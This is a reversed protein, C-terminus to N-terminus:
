AAAARVDVRSPHRDQPEVWPQGLARFFDAEEPCPVLQGARYVNTGSVRRLYRQCDTVLRTNWDGPGTRLAFITGWTDPDFVMFLDVPLGQYERAQYLQGQRVQQEVSGDARHVEVARLPFQDALRELLGGPGTLLNVPELTGWLDGRSQGEVSAIAVIEIDHVTAKRRRISGAVEIRQCAPRLLDVLEQAIRNAKSWGIPQGSSV